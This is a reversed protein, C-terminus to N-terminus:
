RLKGLVTGSENSRMLEIDEPSMIEYTNRNVLREDQHFGSEHAFASARIVLEESAVQRSCDGHERKRKNKSLNDSRIKTSEIESLSLSMNEEVVPIWFEFNLNAVRRILVFGKYGFTKGWYNQLIYYQQIRGDTKLTANGVIVMVHRGRLFDKKYPGNYMIKDHGRFSRYIDLTAIIPYHNSLKFAEIEGLKKFSFIKQRAFEDCNCFESYINKPRPDMLVSTVQLGYDRIYQLVESVEAGCRNIKQRSNDQDVLKKFINDNIDDLNFYYDPCGDIVVGLKRCTMEVCTVTSVFASVNLDNEDKRVPSVILENLHFQSINIPSPQNRLYARLAIMLKKSTMKKRGM